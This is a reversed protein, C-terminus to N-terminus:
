IWFRGRAAETYDSSLRLRSFSVAVPEVECCTSFVARWERPDVEVLLAPYERGRRDTLASLVGRMAGTHVALAERVGLRRALGRLAQPDPPSSTDLVVCVGGPYPVVALPEVGLAHTAERRLTPDAAPVGSLACSGRVAVRRLDVEVRAGELFRRYNEARLARRDGRDRAAKVGPSPLSYVTAQTARRMYGALEESGLVVVFDARAAWALDAKLELAQMGEVWGDTDVVVFGAGYAPAAAAAGAVAAVLRGAVPGPEISGVFRMERPELHRLWEVWSQPTALSVFGPPGIDAQGIDADVIAPAISHALARNALLATYSTKGAEVPGVVLVRSPGRAEEIITDAVELWRFYHDEGEVPAEVRGGEGVSVEVVAGPDLATVPYSRHRALEFEEGAGLEAGLISAVGGVVRVRAPGFVRAQEGPALELRLRPM